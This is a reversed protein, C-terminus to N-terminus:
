VKGEKGYIVDLFKEADFKSSDKELMAVFAQVTGSRFVMVDTLVLIDARQKLVKAIEVYHEKTFM